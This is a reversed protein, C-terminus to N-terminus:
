APWAEPTKVGLADVVMDTFTVWGFANEFNWLTSQRNFDPGSHNMADEILVPWFELMYADRATADVCVNTAVGTFLLHRIVRGRLFAELGTNCFGSYRSKRIVHDGREPKLADVIQWDWSNDILLKGRLEPRDRMMVMGLEKHFNPSSSDGGDSLDARYSMQLYVVTMGAKRAAALLRKNAEIAPAAGSIDFGALDFMGGPSAFANQMDVVIVATQAPVICVPEPRADLALM